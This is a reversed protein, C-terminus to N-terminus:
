MFLEGAQWYNSGAFDELQAADTSVHGVAAFRVEPLQERLSSV